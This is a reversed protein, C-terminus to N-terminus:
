ELEECIIRNIVKKFDRRNYRENKCICRSCPRGTTKYIQNWRQKALEVWHPLDINNRDENWKYYLEYLIQHIRYRCVITFFECFM